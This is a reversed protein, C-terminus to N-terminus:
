RTYGIALGAALGTALGLSLWVLRSPPEELQEVKHALVRAATACNVLATASTMREATLEAQTIPCALAPPALVEEARLPAAALFVMTLVVATKM